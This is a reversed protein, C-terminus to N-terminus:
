LATSDTCNFLTYYPTEDLYVVADTKCVVIIPTIVYDKNVLSLM